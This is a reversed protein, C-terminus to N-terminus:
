LPLEGNFVPFISPQRATRIRPDPSIPDTKSKRDHSLIAESSNFDALARELREITTNRLLSAYM